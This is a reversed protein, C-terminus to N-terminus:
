TVATGKPLLLVMSAPGGTVQARVKNSPLLQTITCLIPGVNCAVGVAYSVMSVFQLNITSGKQGAFSARSLNTPTNVLPTVEPPFSMDDNM